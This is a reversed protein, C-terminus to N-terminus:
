PLRPPRLFWLYGLILFTLTGGFAAQYADRAYGAGAPPWLDIVAGILYQLTFAGAFVLLNLATNARGAFQPPFHQSLLPYALVTTNGLLGFLIWAWYGAPAVQLTLALLVLVFAATTGGITQMLSVGLRKLVDAVLGTLAFGVTMAASLALLHLAVASRDLGAVDRLWPGAWLGQIAMNSGMGMISVPALRWFLRDRFIKALGALQARLDDTGHTGAREPVVMFITAAVAVTLGALGAFIGRWDTLALAAEVPATASLAGLGGASLFLGNILPWRERPFWLTIAKLSSMLGGAFGLGILARGIILEAKSTGLAFILAGAAAALLLSAQVRRPGFRDLLLGLPLQFAAFSLFYVSTLLGLDSAGLGIDRVLDPAIVANVSRFLYSLFYGGTFPLFVLLVARGLGASAPTAAAGTM